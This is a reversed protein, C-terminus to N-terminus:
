LIKWPFAKDPVQNWTGAIWFITKFIIERKRFLLFRIMMMDEYDLELAM